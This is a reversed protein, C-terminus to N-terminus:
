VNKKVRKRTEDQKMARKGHECVLLDGDDDEEMVETIVRREDVLREYMGRMELNCHSVVTAIISDDRGDEKCKRVARGIFQEFMLESSMKRAIGIVSVHNNDYGERLCDVVVLTRFDRDKTFRQLVKKGGELQSYYPHSRECERQLDDTDDLRMQNYVKSFYKAEEVNAVTVMGQHFFKNDALKDHARLAEKMTKAIIPYTERVSDKPKLVTRPRKKKANARTKLLKSLSNYLNSLEMEDDESTQQLRAKTTAIRRDLDTEDEVLEPLPLIEEVECFELDRIIGENVMEQRSKEYVPTAKFMNQTTIIGNGERLPTATLFIMKTGIFVDLLKQWMDAPVHHAEDVIVLDYKGEVLVEPRARFM